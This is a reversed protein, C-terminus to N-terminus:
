SSSRAGPGAAQQQGYEASGRGSPLKCARENRLRRSLAWGLLALSLIGLIPQVPAWLTLAGSAGVAAVVVKNCIPCGVALFSAASGLVGNRGSSDHPAQTRVYTALILGSLVSAIAWVPYNWWLVPTMRQYFSTSIIGTPIGIFFATLATGAIAMLWRAPAWDDFVM